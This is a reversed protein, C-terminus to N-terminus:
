TTEIVVRYDSNIIAAGYISYWALGHKRGFDTIGNDRMEVPLAVGYGVCGAGFMVGMYVDFSGTLANASSLANDATTLGEAQNNGDYIYSIDAVSSAKGHPMHSSEIFIVDDFRGLEGNFVARTRHYNNADIWQADARLYRAQHPHIACVYFDNNFKPTNKTQLEEVMRRVEAAGFTDDSGLDTRDAANGGFLTTPSNGSDNITTGVNQVNNLTYTAEKLGLLQDRILKDPGWKAYHRGLLFAHESMVDDWALQLLKESVECAKGYETVVVNITSATVSDTAMADGDTLAVTPGGFDTYKTFAITDGSQKLLEERVTVFEEFRMVGLANHLIERSYVDTVVSSAGDFTTTTTTAM